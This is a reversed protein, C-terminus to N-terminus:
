RTFCGLVLQPLVRRGSLARRNRPMTLDLQRRRLADTSLEPDRRRIWASYAQMPTRGDLVRHPRIHNYYRAFTDLHEILASCGALRV